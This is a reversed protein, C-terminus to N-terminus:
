TNLKEMLDNVMANMGKDTRRQEDIKSISHM